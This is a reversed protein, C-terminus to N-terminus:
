DTLVGFVEVSNCLTNAYAGYTYFEIVEGNEDYETDKLKRARVLYSEPLISHILELEDKMEVYEVVWISKTRDNNINSIDKTVTTPFQFLKNKSVMTEMKEVKIKCDEKTVCVEIINDDNYKNRGIVFESEGFFVDGVRPTKTKITKEFTKIKKM